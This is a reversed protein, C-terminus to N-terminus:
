SNGARGAAQMVAQREHEAALGAAKGLALMKSGGGSFGGPGAGAYGPLTFKAEPQRAWSFKCAVLWDPHVVPVGARQAAQVQLCLLSLLVLVHILLPVSAALVLVWGCRTSGWTLQWSM